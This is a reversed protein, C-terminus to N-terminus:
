EIRIMGKRYDLKVVRNSYFDGGLIGSVESGIEQSIEGLHIALIKAYDKKMKGLGLQVDNVGLVSHTVGCAGAFEVEIKADPTDEHIGLAAAQRKSLASMVAGTDLLFSRNDKGNISVPVLLLNGFMRFNVVTGDPGPLSDGKGGKEATRPELRIKHEPYDLVVLFDALDSTSLVGDILGQFIRNDFSSVPLNSIELAGMRLKAAKCLHTPSKGSEGVCRVIASTVIPIKLQEILDNSLVTSTAGTDVLFRYPGSDNVYGEIIMLGFFPRFPIEYSRQTDKIGGVAEKEFSRFFTLLAGANQVREPTFQPKLSLYKELSKVQQAYDRLAGYAESQFFYNEAMQPALEIARKFSNLSQDYELRSLQLRGMAQHADAQNADFQLSKKLEAEASLFNGERLLVLGEASLVFPDNPSRELVKKILGSAQDLQDEILLIKIHLLQSQPFDPSSEPVKALVNKAASLDGKEYFSKAQLFYGPPPNDARGVVFGFVLLCSSFGLCVPLSRIKM